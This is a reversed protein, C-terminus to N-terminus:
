WSLYKYVVRILKYAEEMNRAQYSITYGDVRKMGPISMAVDARTPSDVKMRFEVPGQTVMPKVKGIDKIAAKTEEKLLRKVVDPHILQAASSGIATKTVVCRVPILKKIEETFTKDGAALLVPV